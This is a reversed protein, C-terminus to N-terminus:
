KSMMEVHIMTYKQNMKKGQLHFFNRKLYSYKSGSGTMSRKSIFDGKSQLPLSKIQCKNRRKIGKILQEFICKPPYLKM